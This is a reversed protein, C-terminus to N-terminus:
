RTEGSENDPDVHVLAKVLRPVQDRLCLEVGKAVAHGEKVSMNGDVTVHIEVFVRGGSTRARLDHVEKVGEVSLACVGIQSVIDSEPATDIFEQIASFVFSAGVRGILLSVVIAAVPDLVAWSPRIASAAVGVLVALSSLADSRHHWANSMLAESQIKRGVLRTYQFMGEKSLISAIAVGLALLGPPEAVGSRITLAASVAMGAAAAILTVGVVMSALTEIRGHGFPHCDDEGRRGWRLGMIVVGDSLLDSVSHIGDAFLAQSGAALGAWCKGVILVVNVAAGVLTVFVGRQYDRPDAHADPFPETM